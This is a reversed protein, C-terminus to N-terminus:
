RDEPRGEAKKLSVRESKDTFLLPDGGKRRKWVRGKQTFKSPIVPLLDGGKRTSTCAKEGKESFTTPIVLLNLM